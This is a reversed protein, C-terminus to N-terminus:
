LTSRRPTLGGYTLVYANAVWPLLTLPMRMDAGVSPLAVQTISLDLADLLITMCLVALVLRSHGVWRQPTQGM